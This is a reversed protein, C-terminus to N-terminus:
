TAKCSAWEMTPRTRYEWSQKPTDRETHDDTYLVKWQYTPIPDRRYFAGEKKEANPDSLHGLQTYGEKKVPTGETILVTTANADNLWHQYNIGRPPRDDCYTGAYISDLWVTLCAMAKELNHLRGPSQEDIDNGEMYDTLHRLTASYYTNASIKGAVRFNYAGYKVGEYMALALRAIIHPPVFHFPVKKMGQEQKPNAVSM